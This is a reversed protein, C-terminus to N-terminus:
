YTIARLGTPTSLTPTPEPEPEPVPAVEEKDYMEFDDFLINGTDDDSIIRVNLGGKPYEVPVDFDFEYKNWGPKLSITRKEFKDKGKLAVAYFVKVTVELSYGEKSPKAWFSLKYTKPPKFRIPRISYSTELLEFYGQNITNVKLVKEGTGGERKGEVLEGSIKDELLWARPIKKEVYDDEPYEDSEEDFDESPVGSPVLETDYTEFGGNPILNEKQQAKAGVVYLLSAFLTILLTKKM